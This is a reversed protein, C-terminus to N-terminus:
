LSLQYSVPVYHYGEGGTEIYGLAPFPLHYGILPIRDVAGMLAARRSFTGIM